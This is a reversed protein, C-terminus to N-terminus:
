IKRMALPLYQICFAPLAPLLKQVTLLERITFPPLVEKYGAFKMKSRTGTFPSATLAGM